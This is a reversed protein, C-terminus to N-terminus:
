EGREILNLLYIYEKEPIIELAWEKPINCGFKKNLNLQKYLKNWYYINALVRAKHTCCIFTAKHNPDGYYDYNYATCLSCGSSIPCTLCKKNDEFQCQTVMDIKSLKLLWPNNKKSDIGNWIDGISQEERGPTSLCYKMFRICPYCKGDTGIALMDGNGGCWNQRDTLKNGCNEDFLSCYYKSYNDDQLLYDALEKMQYYLVKADEVTWGKEFVCNTHAGQLGLSWVNKLADNLYMVNEPCLTIKTPKIYGNAIQSKIAKEVIDYSGSGDPFIRCKDHLKKNGDITIALNVKDTNRKLFDQVKENEYLTGNSTISIMYNNAWPHNLEFSRFKFYEVIYNILDIELLPEGGIFELVVANNKTADYYNNVLNENLIFDVAQKAVEKTMRKNTKHKEYCYTCNLNCNETVVFTINKHRVKYNKIKNDLLMEEADICESIIESWEKFDGMQFYLGNEPTMM